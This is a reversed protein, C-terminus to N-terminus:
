VLGWLGSGPRPLIQDPVQDRGNGDVVVVHDIYFDFHVVGVACCSDHYLDRFGLRVLGLRERGARVPTSRIWGIPQQQDEDPHKARGLARACLWHPVEDGGVSGAMDLHDLRCRCHVVGIACRSDHTCTASDSGSWGAANGAQVDLKLSAGATLNDSTKSRGTQESWQGAGLQGGLDFRTQYKAAGSVAPWTWTISDADATCSVSPAGPITTCTASGSGSWGAANGAQVYLTLSTGASLNDSTKSRGSQESWTSDDSSTRYKTAGSATPWTWTISDADATCSVDPAPPIPLTTTCTESDTSSWGAANGAQVDLKLSAGASLEDREKSTETQESWQGVGLQGGLDFRTRYKTAGSVATWSWTISDADATCSVSPAGPITTCTASGSGSWGAANGAQVYLTLSTGASLNSSTKSRGSQESWTSNDSSTRYKTAGTVAPWTWTISNADATCSMSPAAPITTCTASDSSSWGSANGAQVDLTLSVGASLNDSTKSLGTQESWPGTGLQGGLDFRTQYKTAGTVAPWSWTISDADATCTVVPASPITTCTASDSDSWGSANGAQVYLTLSTGASLNDSTKSRDTQETWTSDDSDDSSTQYKTAGTVAPWSWTISDADATCSVDPESPVSLTITCTASDTGSWGSANGAQVDLTLSTGASLNDSAKSLDTQESWQGTGLQGGLDFRTQYKTAGTVVPWSWTISDEDATCSVSPMAPITTCTASDSSSWGSDNGAQVYLTASAGATLSNTSKSLVTQESWTSDDASTQYKTAGTVAPWSWTISDEDATCSVVPAALPAPPPPPTNPSNTACSKSGSWSWYVDGSARARVHLTREDGASLNEETKTSPTHDTWSSGDLSVEQATATSPKTWTWTISTGTSTCSIPINTPQVVCSAAGSWSWYAETSRKAQVYLTKRQGPNGTLTLTRDAVNSRSSWSDLATAASTSTRFESVGQPESWKWTVSSPGSSCWVVPPAAVRQTGWKCDNASAELSPCGMTVSRQILGTEGRAARSPFLFELPERRYTYWAEPVTHDFKRRMEFHLHPDTSKGTNGVCGIIHGAEVFPKPTPTSTHLTDAAKCEVSNGVYKPHALHTYYTYWCTRSNSDSEVEQHQVVIYNGFGSGGSTGQVPFKVWFIRGNHTAKVAQGETGGMDTGRHFILAHDIPHQRFMFSSSIDNNASLPSHIPVYSPCDSADLSEIVLTPNEFPELDSPLPSLSDPDGHFRWRPFYSGPALLITDSIGGNVTKTVQVQDQNVGNVTVTKYINLVAKNFYPLYCKVPYKGLVTAEASTQMCRPAIDILKRLDAPISPSWDSWTYVSPDTSFAHKARVRVEYERSKDVNSINKFISASSGTSLTQSIQFILTSMSAGSAGSGSAAGESASRMVKLEYGSASAANTWFCKLQDSGGNSDAVLFCADMEPPIVLDISTSWTSYIKTSGSGARYSRVQIEYAESPKAQYTHMVGSASSPHSSAFEQTFVVPPNSQSAISLEVGAASTPVTWSVDISKLDSGLAATVGTPVPPPIYVTTTPAWMSHTKTNDSGTKYSRVKVSYTEGAAAQYTHMIGNADPTHTSAFEQTFPASPNSASAIHLEVGDVGSPATWAVGISVSDSGLTATLGTPVPLPIHVSIASTWDSRTKSNDSGTKYSRVKVSYTEGATAQYTHMIGNADPTHTSAFEQTFPSSPSSASAIHLEVGGVGSPATWAVGISVSDSGLTATLGTPVPVPTPTPTPAPPTPCQGGSWGTWASVTNGPGTSRVRWRYYQGPTSTRTFSTQSGSWSALDGGDEEAEYGTAGSGAQWGVTLTAGGASCSIWVWSPAGPPTSAPVLGATSATSSTPVAVATQTPVSGIAIALGAAILCVLMTMAVVRRKM